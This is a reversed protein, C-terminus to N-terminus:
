KEPTHNRSAFYDELVTMFPGCARRQKVYALAEPLPMNYFAHMFAIAVTPARNMGANCHLYVRQNARVLAELHELAEKLRGALANASGDPIPTRVLTIGNQDCAARLAAIDLGNFRLDEDDQLSHVATVEFTDRLWIVDEYRPYEGILLQRCLETVSPRGGARTPRFEGAPRISWWDM